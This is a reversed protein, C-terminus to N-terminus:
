NMTWIICGEASNSAVMRKTETTLSRHKWWGCQYKQMQHLYHHIHKQDPFNWSHSYLLQWLHSVPFHLHPLLLLFLWFRSKSYPILKLPTRASGGERDGMGWFSGMKFPNLFDPQKVEYQLFDATTFPPPSFVRNQAEGGWRLLPPPCSGQVKQSKESFIFALFKSRMCYTLKFKLNLFKIPFWSILHNESNCYSLPANLSVIYSLIVRTISGYIAKWSAEQKQKPYKSLLSTSPLGKFLFYYYFFFGLGSYYTTTKGKQEM